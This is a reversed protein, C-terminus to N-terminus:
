KVSRGLERPHAVQRSTRVSMVRHGLHESLPLTALTSIINSGGILISRLTLMSAKDAHRTLDYRFAARSASAARLCVAHWDLIACSLGSSRSASARSSIYPHLPEDKVRLERRSRGNYPRAPTPRSPARCSVASSMSQYSMSQYPREVGEIMRLHIVQVRAFVLAVTNLVILFFLCFFVAPRCEPLSESM